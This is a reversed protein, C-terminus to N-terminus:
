SALPFAAVAVVSAVAVSALLRNNEVAAVPFRLDFVFKVKLEFVPITVALPNAPFIVSTVPFESSAVVNAVALVMPPTDNSPLAFM